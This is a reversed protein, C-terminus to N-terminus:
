LTKMYEILAWKEDDTLDTGYKHGANSNGPIADGNTNEVRFLTMGPTQTTQFGVNTPDFERSGVYFSRVRNQPKQLLQWLNPVSGNHLYPATAWIGNLPRAKYKLTGDSSKASGLHHKISAELIKINLSKKMGLTKLHEELEEQSLPMFGAELSKIPHELITGVVGNIAIDLERTEPGFTSGFLVAKKKGELIYTKAKHNQVNWAMTSDTKILDVPTMVAKYKKGEDNRDIMHHCSSCNVQYIMEGQAAKMPDVTPLIHEPWQPSRLDVLWKELRGLAIIQTTSTYSHKFDWFRWWPAPDIKLKGFVGVVEGMNRALPGVIPTNPASGNWQVVDSQPTGWLFPYSVPANATSANDEPANIAFVAGQNSIQGFADLRAYGIFDKPYIPDPLANINRRKSLEFVIDFLEKKLKDKADPSHNTGLINTAFRDFKNTDMYTKDLALILENFFRTFNALAPAGEILIKTGNYNLQNTHCASCTLGMWARGTKQDFDLAFGIPLGGPNISSSSVPIYRLGDMHDVNRFLQVSNARELHVFWTYPLIQSGQSTFWFDHRTKQNWSQDLTQRVSIPGDAQVVDLKEPIPPIHAPCGYLGFSAFVICVRIISKTKRKSLM